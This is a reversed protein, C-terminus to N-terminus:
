TAERALHGDLWAVAAPWYEAPFFGPSMAVTTDVIQRSVGSDRLAGFLVGLSELVQASSADKRQSRDMWRAGGDYRNCFYDLDIHLFAPWNPLAALRERVDTVVTYEICPSSPHDAARVCPRVAKNGLVDDGIYGRVLSYARRRSRGGSTAKLHRVHIRPGFHLLPVIFSAIGIAGSAIASHVSEPQWLDFVRSTLLDTLAGDTRLLDPSMLDDHDDPHLRVKESRGAM